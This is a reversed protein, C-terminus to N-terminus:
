AASQRGPLGLALLGALATLAAAVLFARDYGATLAAAGTGGCSAATHSAITALV